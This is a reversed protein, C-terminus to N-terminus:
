RSRLVILLLTKYLNMYNERLSDIVRYFYSRPPQPKPSAGESVGGEFMSADVHLNEDTFERARTGSSPVLSRPSEELLVLRKRLEAEVVQNRVELDVLSWGFFLSGFVGVLADMTILLSSCHHQPPPFACRGAAHAIPSSNRVSLAALETGM